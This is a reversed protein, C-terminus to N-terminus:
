KIKWTMALRGQDNKVVGAEMIVDKKALENRRPTVSNIEWKLHAAIQKDTCPQLKKIANYVKTQKDGLDPLVWNQYAELSTQRVSM